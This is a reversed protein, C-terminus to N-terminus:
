QKSVVLTTGDGDDDHNDAASYTLKKHSIGTVEFTVDSTGSDFRPSRLRCTGDRRTRCAAKETGDSTTWTAEVKARRVLDETSGHVTVTVYAQWKGRSRVKISGDLDGIHSTDSVVPPAANVELKADNSAIGDMSASILAKGEEVGLALGTGNVTAVSTDSSDWSAGSTIDMSSGDDFNGVAMYQQSGGKDISRDAPTVDISTLVPGPPPPPPPPPPAVAGVHPLGYGSAVDYGVKARKGDTIDTVTTRLHMRTSTPDGQWLKAALGAVHPASMSTGTFHAYGDADTFYTPYTSEVIKGAAVLEIEGITIVSDDGDDVGRSSFNTVTETNDIAAVAIVNPDWAPYEITGSGPGANGASAVFLIDGKHRDIAAAIRSDSSPGSISMTIVDVLNNNGLYDIATAIDDALCGSSTCVIISYLDAEPALGWIGTGTLGGDAVASGAT